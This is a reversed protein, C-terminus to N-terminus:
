AEDKRTESMQKQTPIQDANRQRTTRKYDDIAQKRCDRAGCRVERFLELIAIRLQSDIPDRCHKRLLRVQRTGIRQIRM